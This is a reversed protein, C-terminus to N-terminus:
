SLSCTSVQECSAGLDLLTHSTETQGTTYAITPCDPYKYKVPILGSLLETINTALFVKKFVNTKRKKICM